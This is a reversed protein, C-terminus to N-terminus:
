YFIFKKLKEISFKSSFAVIVGIYAKKHVAREPWYYKVEAGCQLEPHASEFLISSKNVITFCGDGEILVQEGM